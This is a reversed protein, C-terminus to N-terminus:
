VDRVKKVKEFTTSILKNGTIVQNEEVSYILRGKSIEDIVWSFVELAEEIVAEGSEMSCEARLDEIAKVGGKNVQYYATVKAKDKDGEFYALTDKLGDEIAQGLKTRRTM